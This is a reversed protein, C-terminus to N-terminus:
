WRVRPRYYNRYYPRAVRYPTYTSYWGNNYSYSPYSYTPYSPYSYRYTSYGSQYPYYYGSPYYSPGVSVAPYGLPNVQLAIGTQGMVQSGFALAVCMTTGLVLRKLM